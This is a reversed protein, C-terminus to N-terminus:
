INLWSRQRCNRAELKSKNGVRVKSNEVLLDTVSNCLNNAYLWPVNMSQIGVAAAPIISFRHYYTDFMEYLYFCVNIQRQISFVSSCLSLKLKPLTFAAHM